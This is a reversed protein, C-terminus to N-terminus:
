SKTVNTKEPLFVLTANWRPIQGKPNVVWLHTVSIGDELSCGHVDVRVRVWAAAVSM